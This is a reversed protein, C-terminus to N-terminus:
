SVKKYVIKGVIPMEITMTNKDTIEFAISTGSKLYVTVVSDKKEYRLVAQPTDAILVKDPAFEMTPGVSLGLGGFTFHEAHWRGYIDRHADLAHCGCILLATIVGLITRRMIM